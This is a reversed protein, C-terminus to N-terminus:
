IAACISCCSRSSFSFCSFSSASLCSSIKRWTVASIELSDDDTRPTSVVEATEEEKGEDDVDVTATSDVMTEDAEAAEETEHGGSTLILEASDAGGAM